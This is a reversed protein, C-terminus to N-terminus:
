NIVITTVMVDWEQMMGQHAPIIDLPAQAQDLATWYHGKMEVVTLDVWIILGWEMELIHTQFLQQMQM